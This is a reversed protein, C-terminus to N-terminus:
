NNKLLEKIKKYVKEVHEKVKVKEFIYIIKGQSNIIFTTRMIGLFTNGFLKGERMVGMARCFKKDVDALLNIKLNKSQIFNQHKQINDPSIGYISIKLSQFKEIYKSFDIAEKTCGPTNDKPYFYIISFKGIFNQENIIKHNQDQLKFEPLKDGIKLM